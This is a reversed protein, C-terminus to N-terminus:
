AVNHLFRCDEAGMKGNTLVQLRNLSYVCVCCAFGRRASLCLSLMMVATPDVWFRDRSREFFFFVSISYGASSVCTSGVLAAKETEVIAHYLSFKVRHLVGKPLPAQSKIRDVPNRQFAAPEAAIIARCTIVTDTRESSDSAQMGSSPPDTARRWRRRMVREELVRVCDSDDAGEAGRLARRACCDGRCFTICHSGRKQRRRVIARPWRISPDLFPDRKALSCSSPIESGVRLLGPWPSPRLRPTPTAM